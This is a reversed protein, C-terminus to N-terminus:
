VQLAGVGKVIDEPIGEKEKGNQEILKATTAEKEPSADKALPETQSSTAGKKQNKFFQRRFQRRRRYGNKNPKAENKNDSVAAEKAEVNDANPRDAIRSDRRGRYVRSRRYPQRDFKEDRFGSRDRNNHAPRRSGQYRGGVRDERNRYGSRRAYNDYYAPRRNFDNFYPFRLRRDFTDNYVFIIRCGQVETGDPGTVNSAELGRKGQVVDFQVLEDHGLTRLHPRRIRSKAIALQHVFVDQEDDDRQIFGYNKRFSYWKVKGTVSQKIVPKKTQQEEWRRQEEEPSIRFRGGFRGSTRYRDHYRGRRQNEDSKQNQDGITNEGDKQADEDKDPKPIDINNDKPKATDSKEDQKANDSDGAERNGDKPDIVEACKVVEAETM